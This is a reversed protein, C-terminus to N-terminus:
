LSDFVAMTRGAGFMHTLRSHKWSGWRWSSASLLLMGPNKQPMLFLM